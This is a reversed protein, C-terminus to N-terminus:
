SAFSGRIGLIIILVLTIIISISVIRSTALASVNGALATVDFGLPKRETEHAM